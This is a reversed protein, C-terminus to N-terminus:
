ERLVGVNEIPLTPPTFASAFLRSHLMWPARLRGCTNLFVKHLLEEIDRAREALEQKTPPDDLCGVQTRGRLGSLQGSLGVNSPHITRDSDVIM